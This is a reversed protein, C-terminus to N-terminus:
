PRPAFDRPPFSLWVVAKVMRVPRDAGSNQQQCCGELSALNGLSPPSVRRRLRELGASFPRKQGERKVNYGPSVGTCSAWCRVNRQLTRCSM